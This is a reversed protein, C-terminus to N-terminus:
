KSAHANVDRRLSAVESRLLRIEELLLSFKESTDAKIRSEALAVREDALREIVPKALGFFVAIVTLAGVLFSVIDRAVSIAVSGSRPNDGRSPM